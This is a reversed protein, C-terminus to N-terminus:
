KTYVLRMGDGFRLYKDRYCFSAVGLALIIQNHQTSAGGMHRIYEERFVSM